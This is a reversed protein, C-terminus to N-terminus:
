QTHSLKIFESLAKLTEGPCVIDGEIHSDRWHMSVGVPPSVPFEPISVTQESLYIMLENVFRNAWQACGQPSILLKWASEEPLLQMTQQVDASDTLGSERERQSELLLALKEESGMGFAITNDGTAVLLYRLKGDKGFISELMWNFMPVNADQMLEAVNMSLEIAQKGAITTARIEYAMNTRTSLRFIKNYTETAGQVSELYRKSDSVDALGLTNSLLPDGPKGPLVLFSLNKLGSMMQRYSQELTQWQDDALHELGYVKPMTKLIQSSATALTNAWAEPLPGGSAIVFTQENFEELFSNKGVGAPIAQSLRSGERLLVRKGFRANLDADITLGWAVLKIESKLFDLIGQYMALNTEMLELVGPSQELGGFKDEFLDRQAALSVSGIKLLLEAGAPMIAATIDNTTLWPELPELDPVSEPELELLLELTDRHEVNMLMAYTRNQALLVDEGAIVVRSIEGGPDGHVSEALAGYDAVPLLVMPEAQSAPAKGPLLAVLLEGQPDLGAELGTSFNLLALLAPLPLEFLKTLRSAKADLQSLNRLAVFGLADEPLYNYVGQGRAGQGRADYAASLFVAVALLWYSVLRRGPLRSDGKPM